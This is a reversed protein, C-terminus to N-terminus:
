KRLVEVVEIEKLRWIDEIKQLQCKLEHIDEIFEGTKLKGEMSETLNVRATDKEPFDIVFDYFKLSITSYRSRKSLVFTSLEDSSAKRSFSYAPAHIKCPDAIVEIIRNAKAAAIINHEGPAKEIKEAIFEFQKKVKAEESQSFIFFAIIGATLIGGAIIIHKAKVM